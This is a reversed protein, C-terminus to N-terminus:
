KVPTEDLRLWSAMDRVLAPGLGHVRYLDELSTFAPKKPHGERYAVIAEARAPGIGPLSLLEGMSATNPNIYAILPPVDTQGPIEEHLMM